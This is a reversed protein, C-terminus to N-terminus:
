CLKEGCKPCFPMETIVLDAPTGGDAIFMNLMTLEMYTFNDPTPPLEDAGPDEVRMIKIHQCM